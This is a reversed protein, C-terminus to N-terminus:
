TKPLKWPTAPQSLANRPLSLCRRSASHWKQSPLTAPQVSVDFAMLNPAARRVLSIMIPDFTDINGTGHTSSSGGMANAPIAAEDLLRYQGQTGAQMCAKETNEMMIAVADRVSKKGIKPLDAHEIM